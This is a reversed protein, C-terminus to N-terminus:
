TDEGAALRLGSVLLEHIERNPFPLSPMLDAGISRLQEIAARAEDLQGLHAYCAALFRYSAPWGPVQRVTLRFNQASLEFDRALFQRLGIIATPVGLSDRPSLRVSKEIHGIAIDGEGAIVRLIASVYWGRAYSPNLALARDALTIMDGINEGFYALPFAANILVVPDDAAAELARHAFDIAKRDGV